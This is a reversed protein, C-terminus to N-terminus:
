NMWVFLFGSVCSALFLVSVMVVSTWQVLGNYIDDDISFAIHKSSPLVIEFLQEIKFTFSSWCHQQQM